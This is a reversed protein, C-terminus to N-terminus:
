RVIKGPLGHDQNEAQLDAVKEDPTWNQTLAMQRADLVAEVEQVTNASPWVVRIWVGGNAQNGCTPCFFRKDEETIVQASNCYPCRAVWRGHNVYAETTHSAHMGMPMGRSAYEPWFTILYWEAPRDDRGLPM